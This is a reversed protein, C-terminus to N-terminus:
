SHLNSHIDQILEPIHGSKCLASDFFEARNWTHPLGFRGLQFRGKFQPLTGESTRQGLSGFDCGATVEEGM